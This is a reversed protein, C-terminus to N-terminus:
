RYLMDQPYGLSTVSITSSFLSVLNCIYLSAIEEKKIWMRLSFDTHNPRGFHGFKDCFRLACFAKKFIFNGSEIAVNCYSSKFCIRNSLECISTCQVVM